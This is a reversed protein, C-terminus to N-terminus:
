FLINEIYISNFTPLGCGGHFPRYKGGDLIRLIDAGLDSLHGSWIQLIDVGLNSPHGSWSELSTRELIRLIDM